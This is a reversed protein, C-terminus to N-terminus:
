ALESFMYFLFLSVTALELSGKVLEVTANKAVHYVRQANSVFNPPSKNAAKTADDSLSGLSKKEAIHIDNYM